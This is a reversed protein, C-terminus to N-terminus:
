GKGKNVRRETNNVMVNRGMTKNLQDDVDGNM